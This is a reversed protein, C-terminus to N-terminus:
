KSCQLMAVRTGDVTGEAPRVGGEPDLLSTLASSSLPISCVKTSFPPFISSIDNGPTRDVSLADAGAEAGAGAGSGSSIRLGSLAVIGFNM